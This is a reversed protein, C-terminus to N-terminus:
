RSRTDNKIMKMGKNEFHCGLISKQIERFMLVKTMMWKQTQGTFRNYFLQNNRLIIECFTSVGYFPNGLLDLAWYIYLMFFHKGQLCRLRSRIYWYIKSIGKVNNRVCFKDCIENIPDSKLLLQLGKQKM